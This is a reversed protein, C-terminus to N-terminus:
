DQGSAATEGFDLKMQWGLKPKEVREDSELYRELKKERALAKRVVKKAIRRVGPQRPTTSREVSLAQEKTRAIDQRIRRIEEQQDRWQGWRREHEAEKADIYASYNGAYERVRHTVPDLELIRTVTRDLFTRDHSVVLAAGRFANLWNELWELMTLDLHNTPEDLLLLQPNTILVRVLALRTKQGGSLAAVPTDLPLRGLGLAGLLGPERAANDSAASLRALVDDYERQLDPQDPTRALAEALRELEATLTPLDGLGRNLFGELTEASDRKEDLGQPLYGVRLDSPNLQVAGSDPPDLGALIRLLTTKGCGNPGVLGVREGPNLSFSVNDLITELGFAQSLQHATLM